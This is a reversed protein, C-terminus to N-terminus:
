GKIKYWLFRDVMEM